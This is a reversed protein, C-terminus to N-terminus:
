LTLNLKLFSILTKLSLKEPGQSVRQAWLVGQSFGPSAKVARTRLGLFFGFHFSVPSLGSPKPDAPRSFATLRASVHSQQFLSLPFIFSYFFERKESFPSNRTRVRFFLRFTKVKSENKKLSQEARVHTRRPWKIFNKDVTNPRASHSFIQSKTM